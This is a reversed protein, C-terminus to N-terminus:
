GEAAMPAEEVFNPSPAATGSESIVEVDSTFQYVPRKVGPINVYCRIRQVKELAGTMGIYKPDGGVIRVLQGTKMPDVATAKLTSQVRNHHQLHLALATIQDRNYHAVIENFIEAAETALNPLKNAAKEVKTMHVPATRAAAKAVKRAERETDRQAKALERLASRDEKSTQPDNIKNIGKATARAKAAAIAKDIVSVSNEIANEM